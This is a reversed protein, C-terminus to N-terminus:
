AEAELWAQFMLFSQRLMLRARAAHHPESREGCGVDPPPMNTDERKLM